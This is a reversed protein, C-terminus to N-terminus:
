QVRLFNNYPECDGRLFKKIGSDAFTQYFFDDFQSILYLIITNVIAEEYSNSTTLLIYNTFEIVLVVVVQLFGSLFAVLNREFKWPHNISFKM